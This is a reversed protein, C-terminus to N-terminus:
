PLAVLDTVKPKFLGVLLIAVRDGQPLRQNDIDAALSRWAGPQSDAGENGVVPCCLIALLWLLLATRM